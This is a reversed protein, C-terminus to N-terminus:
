WETPKAIPRKGTVPVLDPLQCPGVYPRVHRTSTAVKTLSIAPQASPTLLTVPLKLEQTVIRIPEVLDTDNTLVAALDFNGKFADRVLHVGLNVDSGKEETKWVFAVEPRPNPPLIIQPRFEPPQVLGAWKQNVLFNGYHIAVKPLTAIARLYAHQRKPAGPDVRGSIHATYYNIAEIQCTTPLVARSMAAIDLWKHATGKLARYYLNFGDIYVITRV